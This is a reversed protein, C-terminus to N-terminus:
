FETGFTLHFTRREDGKFRIVPYGFDMTFVFMNGARLRFSVGASIRFDAFLFSDVDKTLNGTDVFFAARLYDKSIISLPISYELSATVLVNGGIFDRGEKPGVSRWEFGRLSGPGGLFYREYWPIIKTNHHPEKWGGVLELSLVHKYGGKDEYIKKYGGLAVSASSFDVEGGMFGGAYEYSVKAYCGSYRTTHIDSNVNTFAFVPKIASLNRTGESLFVDIPSSPSINTLTNAELRYFMDLSINRGFNRGLGLRIGESRKDWRTYQSDVYELGVSLRTDSDMFHPDRYDISYRTDVKGPQFAISLSTGGGAFANGSIFDYFSKPLDTFDWNRQSLSFLGQLGVATSYSFGFGLRGTKRESLKLVFDRVSSSETPEDLLELNEFFQLNMVRQLSKRWERRNFKQGPYVSLERRIVHDRTRDNGEIRIKGVYIQPGEGIIYTLKVDTGKLGYTIEHNVSHLYGNKDYVESIADMDEDVLERRYPSGPKLKVKEAFDDLGFVKNGKISVEGVHYRPGENVAIRAVAIGRNRSIKVSKLRASVDLFGEDRYAQLITRVDEELSARNYKADHVFFFVRRWITQVSTQMKGYLESDAFFSNGEFEIRRLIVYPGLDVQFEAKVGLATYHPKSVVKVFPYGRTRYHDEVARRDHLLFYKSFHRDEETILDLKLDSPIGLTDGKPNVFAIKKVVPRLTVTLQVTIGDKNTVVRANLWFKGKGVIRKIDKDLTDASYLAGIRSQMNARLIRAVTHRDERTIKTQPPMSSDLKFDITIDRIIKAEAPKADQASL